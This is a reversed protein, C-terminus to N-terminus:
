IDAKTNATVTCVIYEYVFAKAATDGKRWSKDFRYGTAKLIPAIIRATITRITM